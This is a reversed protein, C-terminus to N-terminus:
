TVLCGPKDSHSLYRVNFVRTGFQRWPVDSQSQTWNVRLNYRVRCHICLPVYKNTLKNEVYWSHSTPNYDSKQWFNAPILISTSLALPLWRIDGPDLIKIPSFWGQHSSWERGSARSQKIKSPTLLCFHLWVEKTDLFSHQDTSLLWESNM